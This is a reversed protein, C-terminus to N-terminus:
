PMRHPEKWNINRFNLFNISDHRSRDGFRGLWSSDCTFLIILYILEFCKWKEFNDRRPKYFEILESWNPPRSTRGSRRGRGQAGGASLDGECFFPLSVEMSPFPSSSSTLSSWPQSRPHSVLWTQLESVVRLESEQVGWQMGERTLQGVLSDDLQRHRGWIASISFLM